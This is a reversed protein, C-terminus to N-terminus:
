WQGPVTYHPRIDSLLLRMTPNIHSVLLYATERKFYVRGVDVFYSLTCCAIM